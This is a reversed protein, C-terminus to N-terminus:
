PICDSRSIATLYVVFLYIFLFYKFFLFMPRYRLGNVIRVQNIEGSNFHKCLYMKLMKNKNLTLLPPPIYRLLQYYSSIVWGKKTCM